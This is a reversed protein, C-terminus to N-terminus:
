GIWVRHGVTVEDFVEVLEHCALRVCGHSERRGLAEPRNTGHMYIFRDFSDVGPGQNRGPELGTLRLIRTLVLDDGPAPEVDGPWCDGTWRRARFVAGTPAGDGIRDAVAHWGRPTMFSGEGEGLGAAATSVAYVAVPEFAEIRWLRQTATDVWLLTGGPAHVDWEPIRALAHLEQVRMM